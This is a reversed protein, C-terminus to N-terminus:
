CPWSLAQFSTHLLKDKSWVSNFIKPLHELNSWFLFIVGNISMLLRLRDLISGKNDNIIFPSFYYVFILFIHCLPLVKVYPSFIFTLPDILIQACLYHSCAWLSTHQMQIHIEYTHKCLVLKLNFDWAQTTYALQLNSHHFSFSDHM